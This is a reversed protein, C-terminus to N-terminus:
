TWECHDCSVPEQADIAAAHARATSSPMGETAKVSCRSKVAAVSPSASSPEPMAGLAWGPM